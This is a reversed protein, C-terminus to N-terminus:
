LFFATTARLSDTMIRLRMSTAIDIEGAQQSPPRWHIMRRNVEEKGKIIIREFSDNFM